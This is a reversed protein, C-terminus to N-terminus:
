EAPPRRAGLLSPIIRELAVGRSAKLVVLENGALRQALLPGLAPADPASVLREGLRSAYPALAPVFDGVVALVDPELEVLERAIAAHLAPGEAGLERMTGAAFVLRRGPRLSRATAIAARFSAPNANYCDNLITLDGFQGLEGRAGPITVRALATAAGPRDLGLEQAMAWALMANAAQHRGLLPLEFVQGEVRLTARGSAALALADPVRDAGELGATVVRQALLRARIGLDAPDTGVIALPVGAVLALKETLIAELSGFGELHSPQVNTIVAVTPEIIERARPIEGPQNAGAEIVLAETDVPAALITLPIGVLNNDNARTAHTRYRTRLVAALMEKTSTKGNSGTVAVVPGGIGRRAARALDGLARLTDPVPFLRLGDLPATGARVVAGRAGAALARALFDHGDFRDGALAVFLAGPRLTRTDTAIEVFREAGAPPGLGLTQCIEAETWARLTM